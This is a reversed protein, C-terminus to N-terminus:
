IYVNVPTGVTTAQKIVEVNIATPVQVGSTIIPKGPQPGTSSNTGGNFGGQVLLAQSPFPVNVGPKPQIFVEQTIGTDYNVQEAGNRQVDLWLTDGMVPTAMVPVSGDDNTDPGTQDIVIYNTSYGTIIRNAGQNAATTTDDAFTVQRGLMSVPYSSLLPPALVLLYRTTSASVGHWLNDADFVSLVTCLVVTTESVNTQISESPGVVIFEGPTVFQKFGNPQNPDVPQWTGQGIIQEDVAVETAYPAVSSLTLPVSPDGTVVVEAPTPFTVGDVGNVAPPYGQAGAATLVDREEPTLLVTGGNPNPNGYVQNAVNTLGPNTTDM